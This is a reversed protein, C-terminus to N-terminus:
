LIFYIKSSINIGPADAFYRFRDLYDRYSTNLLNSASVGAGMRHGNVQWEGSIDFALLHYASPPPSFDANLPVREQRGVYTWNVVMHLNQLKKWEAKELGASLTLRNPPTNVLETNEKVQLMRIFSYRASLRIWDIIPHISLDADIGSIMVDDQRYRFVPFAGRITVELENQPQLYIFNTAYNIHPALQFDVLQNLKFNIQHIWKFTREPALNSDGYEIAAASQHVGQSFLENANPSRSSIGLNSQWNVRDNILWKSGLVAAYNHFKFVPTQLNRREDFRFVAFHQFEYRLGGELNIKNKQWSDSIWLAGLQNVYNPIIVRFGTGPVNRNYKYYYDVGGNFDHRGMKRQYIGGIHNVLLNMDLAPIDSRGGRRNDFEKRNDFQIDYQLRFSQRSDKREVVNKFVHHSVHQRPLGIKFTRPRVISPEGSAIALELDALNGIHSAALIGLDRKYYTYLSQLNWSANGKKRQYAFGTFGAIERSGTNSLVYNPANADGARKFTGGGHFGISNRENLHIGKGVRGHFASGLNNSNFSSGVQAKWNGEFTIPALDIAVVGGVADTGYRVSGAGKIVRLSQASAADIEPAHEAGWSQGELRTGNNVILVRDSHLGHIMPKFLTPGTQLNSIGSITSLLQGLERSPDRLDRAKVGTSIETTSTEGSISGLVLAAALEETHHELFFVLPEMPYHVAILTDRTECGLHSIRFIYEGSCVGRLEFYGLSDALTGKGLEPLFITAYDLPSSDHEDIVRGKIIFDCKIPEAGITYSAIAMM